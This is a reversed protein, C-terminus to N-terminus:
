SNIIRLLQAMEVASDAFESGKNEAHVSAREIAQEVTETTLIGYIAPVGTELGIQLVGEASQGAVYDFHPTDGRIVSGLCIVADVSLKRLMQKAALPIEFAGAVWGLTVNEESVGLSLLRAHAGALLQEVIIQNFRAAVIGIKLGNGDLEVNLENM